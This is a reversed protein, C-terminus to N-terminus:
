MKKRTAAAAGAAIASGIGLGVFGAVAGTPPNGPVEPKAAANNAAAATTVAGANANDVTTVDATDTGGVIDEVAEGAGRAADEVGRAAGGVVDEAGRVVNDVAFAGTSMASVAAAAAIYGIFRKM